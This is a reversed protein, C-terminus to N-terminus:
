LCDPIMNYKACYLKSACLRLICGMESIGSLCLRVKYVHMIVVISTYVTMRLASLICWVKWQREYVAPCKDNTKDWNLCLIFFAIVIQPVNIMVVAFVTGRATSLENLRANIVTPNEPNGRMQPLVLVCSILSALLFDFLWPM